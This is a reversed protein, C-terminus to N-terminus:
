RTPSAGALRRRVEDAAHLRITVHNPSQQHRAGGPPTLALVRRAKPDVDFNSLVGTDGLTRATHGRRAFAEVVAVGPIDREGHGRVANLLLRSTADPGKRRYRELDRVAIAPGFQREAEAYRVGGSCCGM